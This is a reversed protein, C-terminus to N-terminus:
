IPGEEDLKKDIAGKLDREQIAKAEKVQDQQEKSMKDFDPRYKKSVNNLEPLSKTQMIRDVLDEFTIPTEKKVEKKDEKKDGESKGQSAANGDDDEPALGVIAMLAYRRAYTIASGVGQPDTKVPTMSIQGSVWEGSCHLLMTEVVVKGNDSPETTQIVSLGNKSLPERIADWCSSLEAYKKKFFPNEADRKVGQIEGQFKCLSKALEIISESKNM